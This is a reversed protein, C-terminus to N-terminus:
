IKHALIFPNTSTALKTRVHTINEFTPKISLRSFIDKIKVAPTVLNYVRKALADTLLITKPCAVPTDALNYKGQGNLVYERLTFSNKIFKSELFEACIQQETKRVFPSDKRQLYFWVMPSTNLLLLNSIQWRKEDPLGNYREKLVPDKFEMNWSSSDLAADFQNDCYLVYELNAEASMKGFSEVTYSYEVPQLLSDAIQAEHDTSHAQFFERMLNDYPFSSILSKVLSYELEYNYGGAFDYFTRVANQCATTMLRHYYNYVMCELIGTKKLAKSIRGLTSGPDANHHVVGTCIIYDFAEVHDVDNLSKEELRLNGVGIQDANKKCVELSQTSIDTGLVEADPFKLATFLAQNTGCGAVWIKPNRPIRTHTWDGIDQNLFQISVDKPYARFSMPPWPFNFKGYFEKNAGDIDVDNNVLKLNFVDIESM